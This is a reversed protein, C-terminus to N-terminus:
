NNITVVKGFYFFLWGAIWIYGTSGCGWVEKHPFIWPRNLSFQIFPCERRTLEENVFEGYITTTIREIGIFKM